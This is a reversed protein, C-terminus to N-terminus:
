YYSGSFLRTLLYYNATVFILFDSVTKYIDSWSVNKIGREKAVRFINENWYVMAHRLGDLLSRSLMLNQTEKAYRKVRKYDPRLEKRIYKPLVKQLRKLLQSDTCWANRLRVHSLLCILHLKHMALRDSKEAKTLVTTGKKKTKKDDTAQVFRSSVQGDPGGVGGTNTGLVIKISESAESPQAKYAALALRHRRKKAKEDEDSEEEEEDDDEQGLVDEFDVDDDSDDEVEAVNEWELGEDEEEEEETPNQTETNEFPDPSSELTQDMAPTDVQKTSSANKSHVKEIKEPMNRTPSSELEIGLRKRASSPLKRNSTPESKNPKPNPEKNLLDNLNQKPSPQNVIRTRSRIPGPLPKRPPIQPVNLVNGLMALHEPALATGTGDYRPGISAGYKAKMADRTAKLTSSRAPRVEDFRQPYLHSSPRPSATASSSSPNAPKQRRTQNTTENRPDQHSSRSISERIQRSSSGEFSEGENRSRNSRGPTSSTSQSNAM